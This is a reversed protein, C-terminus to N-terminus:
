GSVPEIMFCADIIAMFEHDGVILLAPPNSALLRNADDNETFPLSDPM